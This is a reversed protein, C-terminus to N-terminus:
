VAATAVGTENQYLQSSEKQLEEFFDDWSIGGSELGSYGLSRATSHKAADAVAQDGDMGPAASILRRM